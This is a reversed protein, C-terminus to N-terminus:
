PPETPPVAAGEGPVAPESPSPLPLLQKRMSQVAMQSAVEGAAAGGMGDCVVLLAGRKGLDYERLHSFDTEGSDLDIIQYNDENHERVLGVDTAGVIRVRINSSEPM